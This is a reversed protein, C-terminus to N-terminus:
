KALKDLVPTRGAMMGRHYAGINWMGIDDGMIFVINPKDGPQHRKARGASRGTVAGASALRFSPSESSGAASVARPLPSAYSNFRAALVAVTLAGLLFGTGVTFLAQIVAKRRMQMAEKPQISRSPHRRDATSVPLSRPDEM